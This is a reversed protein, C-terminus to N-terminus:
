KKLLEKTHALGPATAAAPHVVVTSADSPRFMRWADEAGAYDPGAFYALRGADRWRQFEPNRDLVRFNAGDPDLVLIRTGPARQEIDSLLSGDGIGIAILLSPISKGNLATDLWSHVM